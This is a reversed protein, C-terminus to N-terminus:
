TIRAEKKDDYFEIEVEDGQSLDKARLVPTKDARIISFGRKLQKKPSADEVRQVFKSLELNKRELVRSIGNVGKTTLHSFERSKKDVLNKSSILIPKLVQTLDQYAREIRTRKLLPIKSLLALCQEEKRKHISTVIIILNSLFSAIQDSYYTFIRSSEDHISTCNDELKDRLELIIDAFYRGIDKPVGFCNFSVDQISSQDEQHGIASFVPVKSLCVAKAVEYESFVALEAPSGGGRFILIADLEMKQLKSIGRVIEKKAKEGQVSVPLWFLKFGFKAKDLSSQFDHIVTGASSTLIGLRTPLLPLKLSKNNEFIGEEKLRANTKERLAAIKGITYEHVIRDVNLSIRSRKDIRVSVEFMVQLEAELVFGAEKLGKALKEEGSWIVCNVSTSPNEVDVLDMFVRTNSRTVKGLVGYVLLSGQFTKSLAYQAKNIFQSVSVGASLPSDLDKTDPPTEESTEEVEVDVVEPFLSLLEDEDLTDLTVKWSKEDPVWRARGLSKIKEKAAFTGPGFFTAEKKNPNLRLFLDSM